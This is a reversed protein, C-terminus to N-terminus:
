YETSVKGFGQSLADLDDGDVDGDKDIDGKAPESNFIVLDVDNSYARNVNDNTRLSLIMSYGDGATDLLEFTDNPIFLKGLHTPIRIYFECEGSYVGGTTALISARLSTSLDLQSYSDPTEWICQFDGNGDRHAYISDSPILPLDLVPGSFYKYAHYINGSVDELQMHYTGVILPAEFIVRYFSEQSLAADYYWQGEDSNYHGNLINYMGGFGSGGSLQVLDGNPDYLEISVIIDDMVYDDLSDKMAFHAVNFSQGNEYRRHQVYWWEVAYPGDAKADIQTLAVVPASESSFVSNQVVFVFLMSVVTVLAKKM